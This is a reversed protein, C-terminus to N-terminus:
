RGEKFLTVIRRIWRKGKVKFREAPPLWSLSYRHIARTHETLKIIGTLSDYPNFYEKPYITFKSVHQICNLDKLGHSVLLTTTNRVVAILNYSGDEKVFNLNQYLDLFEKYFPNHPESGMVLGPSVRIAFSDYAQDALSPASKGDSLRGDIECAFFPGESIIDDLGKIIEVDTDFYLGGYQYLVDYRVYDSVYAYKKEAYAQRLYPLKSVDYNDENWERIEYDPLFRRWSAICKEATKPLPKRGFWCYHIIKPIM